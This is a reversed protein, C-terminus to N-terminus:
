PYLQFSTGPSPLTWNVGGLRVRRAQDEVWGLLEGDTLIGQKHHKQDEYGSYHCLAVNQPEVKKVFKFVSQPSTRKWYDSGVWRGSLYNTGTSDDHPKRLDGPDLGEIWDRLVPARNRPSGSPAWHAISWHNSGPWPYRNNAEAFLCKAGRLRRYHQPRVLPCILDGTFIAKEVAAEQYEVVFMGSGPAHAAHYVPFATVRLGASNGLPAFRQGPDVPVLDILGAQELYGYRRRIEEICGRLGYVALVNRLSPNNRRHRKYSNALWDLGAIHDHHPHTVLVANPLRNHRRVLAEVVGQGIDVLVDWETRGTDPYKGVISYSTNAYEEPIQRFAAHRADTTGLELPWANGRGNVDITVEM